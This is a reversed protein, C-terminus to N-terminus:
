QLKGTGQFGISQLTESQTEELGKSKSVSRLDHGGDSYDGEWRMVPHAAIKGWTLSM